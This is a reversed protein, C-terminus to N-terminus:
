QTKELLPAIKEFLKEAALKHVYGNPHADFPSAMLDRPNKDKLYPLLDITEVNLDEQFFKDMVEHVDYAPYSPGILHIFPFIIVVVKKNQSQLGKIFTSLEEKHRALNQPDHYRALDSTKLDQFTKKYTSTFRWYVFNFFFSNDLLKTISNKQNNTDLIIAAQNNNEPQADNLYYGLVIIDFNLHKVGDYVKIEGPTDYGSKGLNYVQVNKGASILKKELLNSFRNNVDKIGAGFTLSDGLMGIRVEGEKKTPEFNRDRFFYNNYVVHRAHWRANTKLYGLGDSQDYRYRFYAEFGSFVIILSFVTFIVCLLIKKKNQSLSSKYIKYFGFILLAFSVFLLILYFAFDKLFYSLHAWLNFLM